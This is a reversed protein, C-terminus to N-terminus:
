AFFVLIMEITQLCWAAVFLGFSGAYNFGDKIKIKTEVGFSSVSYKKYYVGAQCAWVILTTIFAIVSFVGPIIRSLCKCVLLVSMIMSVLALFISIIAFAAAANMTSRINSTPFGKNPLKDPNAKHAGCRKYGWMSYCLRPSTNVKSKYVDIPTGIVCLFFVIAELIICVVALLVGPLCIM